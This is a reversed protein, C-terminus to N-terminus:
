RRRCECRNMILVIFCLAAAKGTSAEHILTKSTNAELIYCTGKVVVNMYTM